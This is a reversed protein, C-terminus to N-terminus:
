PYAPFAAGWRRTTLASPSPRPWAAPSAPELRVPRNRQIYIKSYATDQGGSLRFPKSRNDVKVASLAQILLMPGPKPMTPGVPFKEAKRRPGLQGSLKSIHQRGPQLDEGMGGSNTGEVGAPSGDERRQSRRFQIDYALRPPRAGIQSQRYFTTFEGHRYPFPTRPFGM